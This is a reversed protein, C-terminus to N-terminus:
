TTQLQHKLMETSFWSEGNGSDDGDGGDSEGMDMDDDDDDGIDYDDVYFDTM